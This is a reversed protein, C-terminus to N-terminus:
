KKRTTLKLPLYLPCFSVASTLLLVVAFIGLIVGITGSTTGTIILLGLLLAALLRIVRDTTGINKQM